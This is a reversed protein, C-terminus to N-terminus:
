AQREATIMTMPHLLFEDLLRSMHQEAQEATSLEQHFELALDM